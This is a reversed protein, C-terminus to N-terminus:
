RLLKNEADMFQLNFYPISSRSDHEPSCEYMTVFEVLDKSEVLSSEAEM